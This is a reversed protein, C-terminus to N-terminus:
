LFQRPPEGVAFDKAPTGKYCRPIWPFDQTLFYAYTGEPFEPTVTMKGSCEDLTGSGEVYEYDAVFTGDYTGGPATEGGPCDGSKLQYSSTM